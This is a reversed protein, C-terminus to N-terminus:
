STPSRCTPGYAIKYTKGFCRILGDVVGLNPPWSRGANLNSPKPLGALRKRAKTLAAKDSRLFAITADVYPNWGFKDRDAPGRSKAMLPIAAGYDGVAARLQAEHWYLLTLYAEANMRYARVMNAAAEECGPKLSLARWGATAEQDFADFGLDLGKPDYKCRDDAPPPAPVTTAAQGAALLLAILAIM